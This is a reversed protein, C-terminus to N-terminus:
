GNKADIKRGQAFFRGILYGGLTGLATTSLCLYLLILIAEKSFSAYEPFELFSWSIGVSLGFSISIFLSGILPFIEEKKPLGKKM